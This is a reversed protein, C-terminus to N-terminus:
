VANDQSLVNCIYNITNLLENNDKEIKEVRQLETLIKELSVRMAKLVRPTTRVYIRQGLVRSILYENKPLGSIYVYRDLLEAEEPSMRFNINKCRWRQKHDLKKEDM